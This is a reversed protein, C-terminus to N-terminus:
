LGLPSAPPEAIPQRRREWLVSAFAGLGVLIVLLKVVGGFGPFSTLVVVLAAGVTLRTVSAWRSTEALALFRGVASGVIADAIFACFVVLAFTLGVAAVVGGVIDIAVFGAFGLEGFAVGLLVALVSIAIVVGAFGLLVLIGVVSTVIPQRQAREVSARFTGPAFRLLALGFLLVLIFQRLADLALALTRDAPSEDLRSALSVDEAGGVTGTRRYTTASGSIGGDVRGDVEMDTATFLLDGGVRGRTGITLSAAAVAADEGVTGAIAVQGGAARVDGGVSGNITVESAGAFVDGTVTGDIVLRAAAAVLDGQVTGEIRITSGFAYLDHDVTTGLPVVLDDGAIIKQAAPGGAAVVGVILLAFVAGAFVAVFRRTRSEM